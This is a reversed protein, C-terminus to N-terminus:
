VTYLYSPNICFGIVILSNNDVNFFVKILILIILLLLYSTNKLKECYTIKVQEEPGTTSPRIRCLRGKEKKHVRM